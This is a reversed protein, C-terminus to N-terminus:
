RARQELPQDFDHPLEPREVPAWPIPRLRVLAQKWEQDLLGILCHIRDVAAVRLRQFFLQAVHQEFRDKEGLHRGFRAVEINVIRQCEDDVLQNPAMRM